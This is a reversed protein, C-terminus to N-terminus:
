QKKGMADGPTGDKKMADGKMAGDKMMTGDKMMAKDAGKMADDKMAGDKAMGDKMEDQKMEGKKMTDGQAWAGGAAVLMAGAVLAVLGVRGREIMTSM